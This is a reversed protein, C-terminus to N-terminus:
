LLLTAPQHIMARALLVRRQQGTSLHHFKREALHGLGLKDLSQQALQYHEDTLPYHQYLLGIAGVYGSVVVELASSVVNYNAQLDQSVLGIKQRLEDVKVTQSGHIKIYSGAQVLPYIERSLLKLLTTKGAGNPGLIAVREGQDIALNLGKFVQNQGQYASVNVIELLSGM